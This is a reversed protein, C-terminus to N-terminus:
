NCNTYVASGSATSTCNVSPQRASAAMGDGAGKLVRGFKQGPSVYNANAGCDIFAVIDGDMTFDCQESRRTYNWATAGQLVKSSEFRDPQGLVEIVHAKSDGSHINAFVQTHLSACGLNLIAIAVSTGLITKGGAKLRM